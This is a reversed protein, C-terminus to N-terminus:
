PKCEARQSVSTLVEAHDVSSKSAVAAAGVFQRCM